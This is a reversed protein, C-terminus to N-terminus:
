WIGQNIGSEITNICHQRQLSLSTHSELWCVPSVRRGAQVRAGPMQWEQRLVGPRWSGNRSPAHASLVFSSTLRGAPLRRPRESKPPGAVGPDRAEQQLGVALQGVWDLLGLGQAELEM